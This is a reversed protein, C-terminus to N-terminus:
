RTAGASGAIGAPVEVQRIVRAPVGVVVSGPPVDAVVVAGAGVVSCRGITVGHLIVANAGIYVDPELRVPAAQRAFGCQALVSAGVDLHSILRAGMSVTARDGISVGAALDILVDKGLHCDDGIELGALSTGPNVLVLPSHIIAGRGVRAGCSRLIAPNLGPVSLLLLKAVGEMGGLGRVVTSLLRGLADRM